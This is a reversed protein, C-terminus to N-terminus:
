GCNRRGCILRFISSFPMLDANFAPQSGSDRPL